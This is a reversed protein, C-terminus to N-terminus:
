DLRLRLIKRGIVTLAAVAVGNVVFPPIGRASPAITDRRLNAIDRPPKAHEIRRGNAEIMTIDPPPVARELAWAAGVLLMAALAITVVPRLAARIRPRSAFLLDWNLGLHLGTAILAIRSSTEHVSHWKLYDDPTPHVALVVKSIMFGSIMAIAMATFLSANLAYNVRTRASGPRRLRRARSEIWNWHQLLHAVIGAILAVALWEHLPVGTLRWAQLAVVAVLMSCDLVIWFRSRM